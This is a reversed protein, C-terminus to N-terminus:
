DVPLARLGALTELTLDAYDAVTLVAGIAKLEAASHTTMIGVTALGARVAATMGSTSDEFAVAEHAALGFRRLGELYPAPDPKGIGLQDSSVITEIRDALGIANLVHVANAMPANTVVGIRIGQARATDMLTKLGPLPDILPNRDRFLAEKADGMADADADSLGPLFTTFIQRNLKGLIVARYVEDDVTIGHPALFETFTAHHLPDTAALTGDLDFLLGKLSM